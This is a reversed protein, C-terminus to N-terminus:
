NALYSQHMDGTVNGVKSDDKGRVHFSHLFAQNHQAWCRSVVLREGIIKEECRHVLIDFGCPWIILGSVPM